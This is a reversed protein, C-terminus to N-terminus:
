RIKLDYKTIKIEKIDDLNTFLNFKNVLYLNDDFVVYPIPTGQDIMFSVNENTNIIKYHSVWPAITTEVREFIYKNDTGLYAFMILSPNKNGYNSSDKYFDKVKKPIKCWNLSRKNLQSLKYEYNNCSNLLLFTIFILVKTKM